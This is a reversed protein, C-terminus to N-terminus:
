LTSNGKYTTWELNTAANNDPDGDVHNVVDCGDAKLCFAAAVLRHVRAIGGVIRYSGGGSKSGYTAGGTKTQVRGQSSVTWARGGVDITKWTESVPVPDYQDAYVWSTGGTQRLEGRCCRTILTRRLGLEDAAQKASEWHRVYNGGLTKQVITRRRVGRPRTAKAM